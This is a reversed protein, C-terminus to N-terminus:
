VPKTLDCTVLRDNTNLVLGYTKGMASPFADNLVRCNIVASHGKGRDESILIKYGSGESPDCHRFAFMKRAKDVFLSFIDGSKINFARQAAKNLVIRRKGVALCPEKEWIEGRNRQGGQCKVVAEWAM